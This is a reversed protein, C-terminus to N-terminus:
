IEPDDSHCLEVFIVKQEVDSSNAEEVYLTCEVDGHRWEHLLKPWIAAYIYFRSEVCAYLSPENWKRAHLNLLSIKPEYYGLDTPYRWLSSLASRKIIGDTLGRVGCGSARLALPVVMQHALPTQHPKISYSRISSSIEAARPRWALIVTEFRFKVVDM